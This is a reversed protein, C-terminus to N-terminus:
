SYLKVFIESDSLLELLDQSCSVTGGHAVHEDARRKIAAGVGDPAGKGHGTESYLWQYNPIDFRKCLLGLLYIAYRNRYQSAPSDSIITL